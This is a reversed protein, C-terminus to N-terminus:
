ISLEKHKTFKIHVKDDSLSQALSRIAEESLEAESTHLLTVGAHLREEFEKEVEELETWRRERYLDRYHHRGKATLCFEAVGYASCLKFSIRGGPHQSYFETIACIMLRIDTGTPMTVGMIIADEPGKYDDTHIHYLVMEDHADMLQDLAAVDYKTSNSTRETGLEYWLSQDQLSKSPVFAWVNELHGSIVLRRLDQIGDRESKAIVNRCSTSVETSLETPHEFSARPRRKDSKRLARVILYTLFIMPGALLPATQNDRM